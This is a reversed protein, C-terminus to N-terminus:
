GNLGMNIICLQREAPEPLATCTNLQETQQREIEVLNEKEREHQRTTSQIALTIVTGIIGLVLLFLVSSGVYGWAKRRHAASQEDARIKAQAELTARKEVELMQAAWPDLAAEEPLRKTPAM